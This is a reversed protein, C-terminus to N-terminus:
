LRSFTLYEVETIIGNKEEQSLTRATIIVPEHVLIDKWKPM